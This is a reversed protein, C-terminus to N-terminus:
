HQQIRHLKKLNFISTIIKEVFTAGIKSMIESQTYTGTPIIVNNFQLQPIEM